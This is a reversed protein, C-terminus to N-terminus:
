APACYCANIKRFERALLFVLAAVLFGIFTSLARQFAVHMSTDPTPLMLVCFSLMMATSEYILATPQYRCALWELCAITLCLTFLYFSIDNRWSAVIIIFGFSLLTGLCYGIFKQVLPYTKCTIELVTITSLASIILRGAQDTKISADILGAISVTIIITIISEISLTAYCTPIEQEKTLLLAGHAVVIAIFAQLWFETAVVVINISFHDAICVVHTALFFFAFCAACGPGWRKFFFAYGVAAITGLLPIYFWPEEPFATLLVISLTCGLTLAVIRYFFHSTTPRPLMSLVVSFVLAMYPYPIHFSAVLLM